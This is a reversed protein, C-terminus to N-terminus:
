MYTSYYVREGGGMGGQGAYRVSLKWASAGQATFAGTGSNFHYVRRIGDGYNACLMFPSAEAAPPAATAKRISTPSRSIGRPTPIRSISRSRTAPPTYTTPPLRPASVTSWSAPHSSSPNLSTPPASTWSAPHSTSQNRASIASPWSAPHSTAPNTSAGTSNPSWSAPHTVAPNPTSIASLWSAPHSTTPNISARTTNPTWSAPHTTSPNQASFGSPWSAPHSTMPNTSSPTNKTTWSAPHSKGPDYASHATSSSTSFLYTREAGGYSVSLSYVATQNPGSANFEYCKEIGDYKVSLQFPSAEGTDREDQGGHFTYMRTSDPYEAILAYASASSSMASPAGGNYHYDRTVGGFETSLTYPIALSTRRVDTTPTNGPSTRSRLLQPKRPIPMSLRKSRGAGGDFHYIRAVGGYDATLAYASQNATSNTSHSDNYHYSREVGDAYRVTLAFASSNSREPRMERSGSAIYSRLSRPKDPVPAPWSLRKDVVPMQFSRRKELVPPSFRKEPLPPSFVKTSSSPSSDGGAFHYLRSSDGYTSFLTYASQSRGSYSPAGGNFHYHLREGKDYSVSLTYAFANTPSSMPTQRASMTSQLLTAKPPIALVRPKYMMTEHAGMAGEFHYVRSEGMYSTRLSYASHSSHSHSSGSYHYARSAGGYSVTLTYAVPNTIAKKSHLLSKTTETGTPLNDGASSGSLSGEFNYMRLIGLYDTRLSYVSHSSYSISSSSYHYARSVGGYSVTLTYALSAATTNPIYKEEETVAKAVPVPPFYNDRSKTPTRWLGESTQQPPVNSAASIPRVVQAERMRAGHFPDQLEIKQFKPAPTPTQPPESRVAQIQPTEHDKLNLEVPSPTQKPVFAARRYASQPPITTVQGQLLTIRTVGNPDYVLEAISKRTRWDCEEDKNLVILDAAEGVKLDLTSGGYLGIANRARSSVCEYLTETDTTTGASYLGIGSSAVTLPDCSGQPTFANCVNNVAIAAQLGHANIMEPVPLTGRHHHVNQSTRMMFLDSTPLGVFSIPLNSSKITHNLGQWDSDNFLTLRTCHGLTIQKGGRHNWHSEKLLDLVRWIFPPKSAEVFYDLHFDLMKQKKLALGIIWRANMKGNVQDKEVYPTSGLVDVEPREAAESMLKRAAAGDDSGTFLPVQAFACIQIDMRGSKAYETKLQIGADLCKFGVEADVEVFARMSTVGAKISEEVLRRGRRLLDAPTFRSKARTTLTMAENFDGKAIQLDAFRPDQLLFCKDLHIHAHCLSPAVLRGEAELIGQVHPQSVSNFDHPEIASIIGDALHLDWLLPKRPLRAGRICRIHAPHSAQSIGPTTQASSDSYNRRKVEHRGDISVASSCETPAITSDDDDLHVGSDRKSIAMWPTCRRKSSNAQPPRKFPSEWLGKGAFQIKEMEVDIDIGHSAFFAKAM